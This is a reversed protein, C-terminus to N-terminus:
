QTVIQLPKAKFAFALSDRDAQDLPLIPSPSDPFEAPKGRGYGTTIKCQEPDSEVKVGQPNFCGCRDGVAICGIVEPKAQALLPSVGPAGPASAPKLQIPVTSPPKLALADISPSVGKGTAANSMVGFARPVVFVGAAIALIPVGIWVPIKQRQKTHLQSSAYLKYAKKPYAWLSKAANKVRSVDVSCADWDYVVARAMGFMRRVHIHRGVLRRVNQDLLSPHQTIIIFDVGKHRHTELQAIMAPPKVGAGRPRWWRQVEDVVIVDGSQCWEFWNWLGDGDTSPMMTSGDSSFEGPAMLTHPLLLAPINDVVVRRLNQVGSKDTVKEAALKQILTSVAYLTKGSGPTGTILYIM